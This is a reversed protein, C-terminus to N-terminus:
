RHVTAPAVARKEAATPGSSTLVVPAGLAAELCTQFARWDRPGDAPQVVTYLPRCRSLRETIAAQRALDPERRAVIAHITTGEHEFLGELDRAPGDYHYAHCVHWAPLAALRDLHTVALGDVPGAVALAYRTAVLDFSGVRFARQWPNTANHAEPLSAALAPDETVFPGPGHRTAYARAVGLRTVEGGYNAEGLLAEANAFTTTSWTTYPHFGHWEDLLVGQAGEFIVTGPQELRRALWEGEVIEIRRAVGGYLDACLEGTAPDLLLALERRAAESDPLSPRLSDLEALKHDRLCAVKRLVAAREALDGARLALAPRALADAMTEGIGMGCSGHRGDGRALERLRNMAQQLPTVVLAERDIVLRALADAVGVERLHEAEGLLALPDILMFRSLYARVGPVFAGSGFQAFTHHRGDPAVVNHAAQAGGNHRVVTRAGHRRTLYDVVSGKGADGYGLDAVLIAQRPAIM